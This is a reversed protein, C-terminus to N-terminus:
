DFFNGEVWRYSDVTTLPFWCGMERQPFKDHWDNAVVLAALKDEAEVKISKGYAQFTYTNM